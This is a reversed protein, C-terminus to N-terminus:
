KKTLKYLVNGIIQIIQVLILLVIVTQVMIGTQFREYGYRIAVDGLGGGGVTGAMASFGVVIILTLTIGNILSPLSEVFMVRFIIQANSAGYSKAAEILSFDVEKLAAEIMKALFPAIGLTLPVITASTGISTGVILRTLPMLVIILIIFPFSRVINVFFDLTNYALPNECLGNKDWIVLLVGPIIALLFGLFTSVLSMYLTELLAPYLIEAFNNLINELM